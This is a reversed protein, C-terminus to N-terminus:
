TQTIYKRCRSIHKGYDYPIDTITCGSPFHAKMLFDLTPLEPEDLKELAVLMAVCSGKFIKRITNMEKISDTKAKFKSWDKDQSNRCLKAYETKANKYKM